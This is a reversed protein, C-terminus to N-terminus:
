QQEYINVKIDNSDLWHECNDKEGRRNSATNFLTCKASM